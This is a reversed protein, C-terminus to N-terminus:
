HGHLHTTTILIRVQIVSKSKFDWKKWAEQEEPTLKIKADEFM